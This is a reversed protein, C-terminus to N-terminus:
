VHGLGNIVGTMEWTRQLSPLAVAIVTVDYGDLFMGAGSLIAIRREFRAAKPNTDPPGAPHESAEVANKM